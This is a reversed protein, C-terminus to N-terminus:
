KLQKENICITCSSSPKRNRRGRVWLVWGQHNGGSTKGAQQERLLPVKIGFGPVTM